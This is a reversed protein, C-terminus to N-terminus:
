IDLRAFIRTRNGVGWPLDFSYSVTKKSFLSTEREVNPVAVHRGM